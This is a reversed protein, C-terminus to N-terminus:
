YDMLPGLLLMVWVVFLTVRWRCGEKRKKM